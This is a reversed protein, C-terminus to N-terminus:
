QVVLTLTTMQAPQAVGNLTPTFTVTLTSTGTPTGPAPPPPTTTGSSGGGCGQLLVAASVPLMLLGAVCALRVTRMRGAPSQMWALLIAVSLLALLLLPLTRIAAPPQMQPGFQPAPVAAGGATTTVTIAVPATGGAPVSVATTPGSCMALSPAGSCAVAVSLMDGPAGGTESIQLNYTATQGAKVTQTTSSSSAAAFALSSGMGTLSVTQHSNTVGGADDTLTITASRSGAASPTFTVSITCKTGSGALSTGCTNAPALTFDGASINISAITLAGTGNNTVTVSQAASANGVMETGFTLSNGSLTATSPTPLGTGSLTVTQPTNGANDAIMIKASRATAATPTFTVSITCSAGMTLSGGCTNAAAPAFAFDGPNTGALTIANSAAFKLATNGNNTVTVTQAASTTGVIQPTFALTPASLDATPQIGTGSLAVKHPTGTANDAVSIFGTRTGPLTPTFTVNITCTGAAALSAPCNNTQSFDGSPTIGTITLAATGNNALTVPLVASPTGVFQSTTFTVTTPNLTIAAAPGSLLPGVTRIRVNQSDAVLLNGSSAALGQPANLEAATAVGGDGAFGPVQPTGAVTYIHNATKGGGTVGVLERVVHNNTDSIFINGAPDALIAFPSDLKAGTALGTDGAFGATKPTGAVTYISNASMAIGYNTGSLAPIERVVHNGTDAILINGFGDVFVGTPGNLLTGTNTTGDNSFGAAVNLTGAVTYLNGKVMSIGYNTGNAFPIERIANNGTDAIFVNFSGDVFIGNPANLQGPGFGPTGNGAITYISGGTMPMGYFTGSVKPVERIAHNATDAIFWNGAKDVFVGNPNAIRGNAATGGDGSFADFGPAGVVTQINGGSVKRIVDNDTDAILLNGTTDTAIGVAQAPTTPFPASFEANTAPGGDGSFFQAGNGVISDIKGTAATVERLNHGQTDAIFINNSGDLFVNSPLDLQASKASGGDGNVGGSPTTGPVGAVIYINGATMGNATTAPVERVLQNSTDSIFLNGSGDVYVGLPINLKATTAPVGDVNYGCSPTSPSGPPIGAVTTIVATSATVERILCNTSDSIFINGHIDGYVGWPNNLNASTAPGGDGSYSNKKAAPNPVGAITYINNAAMTIGYQPGAVAAVERVVHNGKDAIFIDQNADVWVGDPFQLQASTAPGGDGSFDLGAAVNGAVTYINGATMSIGYQTGTNKAIERIAGNDADAIFINDHADIFLDRPGNLQATNAARNDGNYGSTGDGAFITLNGAADLKFVRSQYNDLIYLNGLSDKAAAAPGGISVTLACPSAAPPCTSGGGVVTNITVQARVALPAVVVFLLALFLTKLRM